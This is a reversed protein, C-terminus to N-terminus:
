ETIEPHVMDHLDYNQAVRHLLDLLEAREKESLGECTRRESDVAVEWAKTLVRKGKATLHLARTRRDGPVDRRELLGREQLDDVLAVMRSAPIQLSDGIAQQSRGEQLMILRLMAFQRPELGLPALMARFRRSTAHGLQSLLFGV